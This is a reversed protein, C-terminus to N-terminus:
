RGEAEAAHRARARPEGHDRGGFRRRDHDLEVGGEHAKRADRRSRAPNGPTDRRDPGAVGRRRPHGGAAEAGRRHDGRLHRSVEARTGWRAASSRHLEHAIRRTDDRGDGIRHGTAAADRHRGAAIGGRPCRIRGHCRRPNVTRHPSLSSLDAISAFVDASSPYNMWSPQGCERTLPRTRRSPPTAHSIRTEYIM